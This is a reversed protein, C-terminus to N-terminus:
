PLSHREALQPCASQVHANLPAAAAQIEPTSQNILPGLIVGVQETTTAQAVAVSTDRLLKAGAEYQRDRTQDIYDAAKLLHAAAVSALLKPTTALNSAERYMDYLEGVASCALDDTNFDVQPPITVKPTTDPVTTEEGDKGDPGGPITTSGDSRPKFIDFPSTDPSQSGGRYGPAYKLASVRPGRHKSFQIGLPIGILCVVLIGLAWRMLVRRRQKRLDHDWNDAM